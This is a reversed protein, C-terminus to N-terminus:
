QVIGALDSTIYIYIYIYIYSIYLNIGSGKRGNHLVVASTIAQRTHEDSTAKSVVHLLVYM